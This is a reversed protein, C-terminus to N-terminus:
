GAHCLAAIAKLDARLPCGSLVIKQPKPACLGATTPRQRCLPGLLDRNFRSQM